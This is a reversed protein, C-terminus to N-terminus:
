INKPTRYMAQRTKFNSQKGKNLVFGFRKYFNVLRQTSTAGFSTSPTLTLTVKNQDAWKCVLEMLASGSGSGQTEMEIRDVCVMYGDHGDKSMELVNIDFVKGVEDKNTVYVYNTKGDLLMNLVCFLGNQNNQYACKVPCKMEWIRKVHPMVLIKNYKYNPFDLHITKRLM